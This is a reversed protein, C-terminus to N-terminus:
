DMFLRVYPDFIYLRNRKHGTIERLIGRKVLDRVLAAATNYQVDLLAEVQKIKVVPQRYLSQVLDRANSQKRSHLGPLITSMVM